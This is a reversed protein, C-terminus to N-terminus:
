RGLFLTLVPLHTKAQVPTYQTAICRGQAAVSFLPQLYALTSAHFFNGTDLIVMLCTKRHTLSFSTNYSTILISM